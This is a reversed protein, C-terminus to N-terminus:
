SMSFGTNFSGSLYWGGTCFSLLASAKCLNFKEWQLGCDCTIFSGAFGSSKHSHIIQWWSRPEFNRWCMCVEEKVQLICKPNKQPAVQEKWCHRRMGKGEPKLLWMDFVPSHGQVTCFAIPGTWCSIDHTHSAKCQTGWGEGSSPHQHLLRGPHTVGLPQINYFHLLYCWLVHLM